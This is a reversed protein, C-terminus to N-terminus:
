VANSWLTKWDTGNYQASLHFTKGATTSGPYSLGFVKYISNITLTQASSSDIYIEVIEGIVPTGTPANITLGTTQTTRYYINATSLDPTLNANSTSSNTRPNIRKNSLTATASNKTVDSTNDVNGLGVESATVSHPNSTNAIHSALASIVTALSGGTNLVSLISSILTKLNNWDEAFLVKKNNSDYTTNALNEVDRMNNSIDAM